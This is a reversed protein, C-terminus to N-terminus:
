FYLGYISTVQYSYKLLYTFLYTFSLRLALTRLPDHTFDIVLNDM